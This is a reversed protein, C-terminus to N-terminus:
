GDSKKTKKKTSPVSSKIVDSAAKSAEKAKRKLFGFTSNVGDQTARSAEGFKRHTFKTVNKTTVAVQETAETVAEATGQYAQNAQHQVYESADTVAETTAQYAQNAQRQTERSAASLQQNTYDVAETAKQITYHYADNVQGTAHQWTETTKYTAIGWADTAQECTANWTSATFENTANWAVNIGSWAEEGAEFAQRAAYTLWPANCDAWNWGFEVMETVTTGTRHIGRVVWAGLQGGALDGLMYGAAGCLVTAAIGQPTVMAVLAASGVMGGVSGFVNESHKIERVDASIEGNLYAIEIRAAQSIRRYAEAAIALAQLWGAVSSESEFRITQDVTTGDATTRVVQVKLNGSKAASLVRRAAAIEAETATSRKLTRRAVELTWGKSAQAHGYAVGLRGSGGKAEIVLVQDGKAWVQDFGQRISKMQDLLLPDYNLSKAYVKAGLEGLAESAAIKQAITQAHCISSLCFFLCVLTLRM